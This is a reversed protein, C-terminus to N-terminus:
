RLTESKRLLFPLRVQRVSRYYGTASMARLPKSTGGAAPLYATGRFVPKAIPAELTVQENVQINEALLVKIFSEADAASLDIVTLLRTSGEGLYTLSIRKVPPPNEAAGGMVPAPISALSATEIQRLPITIPGALSIVLAGESIYCEAATVEGSGSHVAATVRFVPKEGNNAEM